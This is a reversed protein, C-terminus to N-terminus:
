LATDTSKLNITFLAGSAPEVVEFPLAQTALDDGGQTPAEGTFVIAGCLLEFEFTEGAEIANANPDTWKIGFPISNGAVFDDYFTAATFDANVTGTVTPYGTHVPQERLASGRLRYRDSKVATDVSFDFDRVDSFTSSDITVVADAWSFCGPAAAYAATAESTVTTSTAGIMDVELRLLADASQTLRWASSVCGSHTFVSGGTLPYQIAQQATFSKTPGASTWEHLQTYAATAAVQTPGTSAGVLGQLLLGMGVNQMDMSITHANGVVLTKAHRAAQAAKRMGSRKLMQTEVDPKLTEVEYSRTAVVATDWTSELGIHYAADHIAM